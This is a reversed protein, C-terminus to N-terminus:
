RPAALKRFILLHGALATPVMLLPLWAFPFSTIWTNAPENHFVRIPIPTSLIAITVIILLLVSGMVNWALVLRRGAMGRYVLLAVILATAGTVIDFNYGSYSMQVPMLGEDYARHMLLELPLRFSQWAILLALPVRDAISAGVGSRVLVITGVIGLIIVIMISPPMTGFDLVGRGSMVATVAVWGVVGAIAIASGNSGGYYIAVVWAATLLLALLIFGYFLM